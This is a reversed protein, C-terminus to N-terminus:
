SDQDDGDADAEKAGGAEEAALRPGMVVGVLTAGEPPEEGEELLTVSGDEVAAFPLGGEREGQWTEVRAADIDMQFLLHRLPRGYQISTRGPSGEGPTDASWRFAKDPAIVRSAWRAVVADVTENDTCSFVWGIHQM